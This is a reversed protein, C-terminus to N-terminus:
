FFINELVAYAEPKKGEKSAIKKLTIKQNRKMDIFM